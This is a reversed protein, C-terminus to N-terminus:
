HKMRRNSFKTKMLQLSLQKKEKEKKLKQQLGYSTEM